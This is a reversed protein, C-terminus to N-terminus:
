TVGWDTRALKKLTKRRLDAREPCSIMVAKITPADRPITKDSHLGQVCSLRGDWIQRLHSVYVRCEEEFWFGPVHKNQLLLNWKDANRHQFLRKGDFDHQCMTRLLPQIPTDVLAYAKKLKRFALHFTEKDGHLYRYYFDSNENFWLSLQLAQWCRK